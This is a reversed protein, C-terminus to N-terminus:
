LVPFSQHIRRNDTQFLPYTALTDLFQGVPHMFFIDWLSKLRFDTGLTSSLKKLPAKSDSNQARVM